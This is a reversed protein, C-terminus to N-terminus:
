YNNMPWKIRLGHVVTFQREHLTTMKHGYLVHVISPPRWEINEKWVNIVMQNAESHVTCKIYQRIIQDTNKVSERKLPRGNGPLVTARQLRACVIDKPERWWVVWGISHSYKGLSNELYLVDYVTARSWTWHWSLNIHRRCSFRTLSLLLLPSM